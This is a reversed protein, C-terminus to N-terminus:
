WVGGGGTSAPTSVLSQTPQTSQQKWWWKSNHEMVRKIEAKNLKLVAGIAKLMHNRSAVDTSLMYTLVVNKLYELNAGESTSMRELRAVTMELEEIKDQYKEEKTSMSLQLEHLMTETQFSLARLEKIEIEKRSLEQVYHLPAGNNKAGANMDGIDCSVKRSPLAVMPSTSSARHPSFFAEEVSMEVEGMLRKIEKDKEDLLELSRERQQQLDFKLMGIQKRNEMRVKEKEDEAHQKQELLKSSSERLEENLCNVQGRCVALKSKLVENDEKLSEIQTYNNLVSEQLGSPSNADGRKAEHLAQQLQTVQEALTRHVPLSFAESLISADSDKELLIQKLQVVKEIMVQTSMTDTTDEDEIPPEVSVARALASNEDSLSDIKTKLRHIDTQDVERLRQYDALSSSLEQLSSELNGVRHEQQQQVEIARLEAAERDVEAARLQAQHQQRVEVLQQQLQRLQLKITDRDKLKDQYILLEKKVTVLESQLEEMEAASPSSPSTQSSLVESKQSHLEDSIKEKLNREDSLLKQLEQMMLKNNSTEQEREHKEVILKSKMEELNRRLTDESSKLTSIQTIFEEKEKKLRRREINFKTENQAKEQSISVLNASLAGLRSKFNATDCSAQSDTVSEADSIDGDTTPQAGVNGKDDGTAATIVKLSSELAAKEKSLGKYARVVDKLRAEYRGLQEKQQEIVELLERRNQKEM